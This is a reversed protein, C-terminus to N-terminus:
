FGFENSVIHIKKKYLYDALEKYQSLFLMEVVDLFFYGLGNIIRDRTPPIENPFKKNYISLFSNMDFRYQFKLNVRLFQRSFETSSVTNEEWLLEILSYNDELARTSQFIFQGEILIKKLAEINM